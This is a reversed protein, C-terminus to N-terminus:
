NHFFHLDTDDAGAPDGALQHVALAADDAVDNQANDARGHATPQAAGDADGGRAIIAACPVGCPAYAM